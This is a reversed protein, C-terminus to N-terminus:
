YRFTSHAKILQCDGNEKEVTNLKIYQQLEYSPVDTMPKLRKLLDNLSGISLDPVGYMETFNYLSKWRIVGDQNAEELDMFFAEYDSLYPNVVDDYSYLRVSPNTSHGENVKPALSPAIFAVSYGSDDRSPDLDKFIRFSDTHTHGYIQAVIQGPHNVPDKPYKNVIEVFKDNISMDDKLDFFCFGNDLEFCGPPVHAAIIIRNNADRTADDLQNDLWELQGCPDMDATYNTGYYLNTNLM